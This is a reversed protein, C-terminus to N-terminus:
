GAASIEFDTQSNGSLGALFNLIVTTFQGAEEIMSAHGTKLVELRAGPIAQQAKRILQLPALMDFQGAVLLTPCCISRLLATDFPAPQSQMMGKLNEPKTRMKVRLYYEFQPPNIFQYGKRFCRETLIRVLTDIDGSEIMNRMHARFDEGVSASSFGAASSALVLAKVMNPHAAALHAAILGGMSYGLIYARPMDIAQMFASLDDFVAATSMGVGPETEGHGRVDYTIVRYRASFAPVLSDWMTLNDCAGHILILPEGEGASSYNILIGNAKIKM